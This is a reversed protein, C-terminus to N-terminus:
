FLLSKCSVNFSVNRTLSGARNTTKCIFPRQHFDRTLTFDLVSEVTNVVTNTTNAKPETVTEIEWDISPLPNGGRSVCVLRIQTGENISTNQKYGNVIELSDPPDLSIM